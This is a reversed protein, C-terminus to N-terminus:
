KERNFKRRNIQDAVKQITGAIGDPDTCACPVLELYRQITEKDPLPHKTLMDTMALIKASYCFPCPQINDELFGREVALAEPTNRVYEYTSIEAGQAKFAPILCAHCLRGDLIVLCRGCVGGRCDPLLSEIKVDDRLIDVLRDGSRVSLKHFRDNIKSEISRFLM